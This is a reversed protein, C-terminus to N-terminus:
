LKNKVTRTKGFGSALRPTFVSFAAVHKLSLCIFVFKFISRNLSVFYVVFFVEQHLRKFDDPTPLIAVSPRVDSLLVSGPLLDSAEQECM